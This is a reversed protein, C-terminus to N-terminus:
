IHCGRSHRIANVIQKSIDKRVVKPLDRFRWMQEGKEIHHALLFIDKKTGLEKPSTGKYIIISAPSDKGYASMKYLEGRKNKEAPRMGSAEIENILREAISDERSTVIKKILRDPLHFAFAQYTCYGSQAMHETPEAINSRVLWRGIDPLNNSDVFQENVALSESEPLNVTIVAYPNEFPLQESSPCDGMYDEIRSFLQVAMTGNNMYSAVDLKVETDQAGIRHKYIASVVDEYNQDQM